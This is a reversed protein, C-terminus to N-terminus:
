YRGAGVFKKRGGCTTRAFYGIGFNFEVLFEVFIPTTKEYTAYQGGAVNLAPYSPQEMGRESIFDDLAYHGRLGVIVTFAEDGALYGGVGVVANLYSETYFSNENDFESPTVGTDVQTVSRVNSIMPGLEFYAGQTSARYLVYLDLNTWDIENTFDNSNVTYDFNQSHRSLMADFTIGHVLGFNIGFKAGVNYSGSLLHSYSNDNFLNPNALFTLGYGGKLGADLWIEQAKSFSFACVCMLVFFLKKM